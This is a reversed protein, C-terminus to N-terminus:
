FRAPISYQIKLARTMELLTRHRREVRGNQQPTYSSTTQHLIGHSTFFSSLTYNLFEGGNDSRFCKISTKFQVSVYAYFEQLSLIVHQKTPLLVTWIARSNDDVLTLFYRCGDVTLTRYPSWVDCHVLDFPAITYSSSSSFPSNCQKALPYIDSCFTESVSILSPIKNLVTNSTHGLIKHWM